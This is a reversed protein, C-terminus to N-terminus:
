ASQDDEELAGLMSDIQDGTLRRRARKSPIGRSAALVAEALEGASAYRANPDKAMAKMIVGELNPSVDPRAESIRPIPESVHKMLLRPIDDDWYPARGALMEYLVIGLAYIDARPTIEGQGYVQEPAMYAPTGLIFRGSLVGSSGMIKVLGFDALFVDGASDILLNAPKLDRHVIRRAHIADLAAGVREIMPAIEGTNLAGQRRILGEVSGGTMFRMVLYPEQEHYGFDYVPVICPHELGAIVQAEREFRRAFEPDATLNGIMVKVVVERKMFLDQALYAIAMGGRGLESTVEYRGIKM